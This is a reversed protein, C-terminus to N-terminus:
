HYDTEYPFMAYLSNYKSYSLFSEDQVLFEFSKKSSDIRKKSVIGLRLMELLVFGVWDLKCSGNSMNATYLFNELDFPKKLLLQNHAKVAHEIITEAFLSMTVAYLPVGLLLYTGILASKQTGMDCVTGSGKICTSSQLGGTSCSTIAWYLSTIIPWKEFLIGYSTGLAIWSLFILIINVRRRNSYWGIVVKFEYWYKRFIRILAISSNDQVAGSVFKTPVIDVKLHFFESLSAMLSGVIVTSGTMIYFITFMKSTDNPEVPDCFGISLGADIVYYYATSITWNNHYKYFIIGVWVWIFYIMGAINIISSNGLWLKIDKARSKSKLKIDKINLMDINSLMSDISTINQFRNPLRLINKLPSSKPTLSDNIDVSTSSLNDNTDNTNLVNNEDIAITLDDNSSSKPSQRISDYISELRNSISLRRQVTNGEVNKPPTPSEFVNIENNNLKISYRRANGILDTSDGIEIFGSFNTDLVEFKKKVVEIEDWDLRGLRILELLVFSNFKLGEKSSGSFIAGAHEFEELSLPHEFIKRESARLYTEFLYKIFQAMTATYIPVGILLYTGMLFGRKDSIVCVGNEDFWSCAPTQLGATACSTIAWYISSIITWNEVTVGYFGGLIIWFLYFLVLISSANAYIFNTIRSGMTEHINLKNTSINNNIVQSLITGVSGSIFSSGCLVYFITFLQSRQSSENPKCYGISLGAQISYYYATALSWNNFVSYFITGVIVKHHNHYSISSSSSSIIIIINIIVIVIIIIILSSIGM